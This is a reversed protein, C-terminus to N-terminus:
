GQVREWEALKEDMEKQIREYEKGIKAAEGASVILFM